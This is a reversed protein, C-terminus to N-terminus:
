KYNNVISLKWKTSGVSCNGKGTKSYSKFGPTKTFGYQGVTYENSIVSVGSGFTVSSGNCATIKGSAKTINIYEQNRYTSITYKVTLKIKATGTSDSGSRTMSLGEDAYVNDGFFTKKM